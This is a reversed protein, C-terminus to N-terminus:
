NIFNKYIFRTVTSSLIRFYIYNLIFKALSSVKFTPAYGEFLTKKLYKYYLKKNPSISEYSWPKSFRSSFHIIRPNNKSDFFECESYTTNRYNKEISVGALQNWIPNIVGWKDFLIKNLAGQDHSHPPLEDNNLSYEIKNSIDNDRFKELNILLVGANFYGNKFSIYKRYQREMEISSDKVALLYNEGFNMDFLPSIDKVIVLDCDLYLIKKINPFMEPIKIRYYTARTIQKSEKFSSFDFKNISYFEISNKKNDFLQVTKIIKERNENSIGGDLVIIRIYREPSLSDLLSYISVCLHQAFNNDSSFAINILSRNM